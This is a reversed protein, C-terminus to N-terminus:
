GGTQPVTELPAHGQTLLPDPAPEGRRGATRKVQAVEAGGQETPQFGATAIAEPQQTKIIEVKGPHLGPGLFGDEGVEM